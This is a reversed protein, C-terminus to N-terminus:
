RNRRAALYEDYARPDNAFIDAVAAHMSGAGKAVSEEALSNVYSLVDNNDAAGAFGVEDFMAASAAELAKAIVSCDEYSLTEAARMLVPGLVDPHIGVNYEAAKAVYERTLRLEREAKAISEAEAARQEAKSVEDLAKTIVEDREIDSLAKSLDERVRDALSGGFAKGVTALESELETELESAEDDDEEVWQYANGDEDFVIAGVELDELEVPQGDENYIEPVVDEETARKAIAVKAHQNAPRDVLSIEDIEINTLEKVQKPM